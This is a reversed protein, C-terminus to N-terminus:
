GPAHHDWVARRLAAAFEGASEYRDHPDPALATALVVGLDGPLDAAPVVGRGARAMTEAVTGAAFPETGTMLEFATCALSYQDVSPSFPNGRLLEPAIYRANAMLVTPRLVEPPSPFGTLAAAVLVDGDLLVDIESSQVTGYVLGETAWSDLQDAIAGVIDVVLEASLTGRVALLAAATTVAANM